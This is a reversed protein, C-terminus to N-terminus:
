DGREYAVYDDGADIRRTRTSWSWGSALKDATTSKDVDANSQAATLAGNLQAIETTAEDASKKARAAVTEANMESRLREAVM